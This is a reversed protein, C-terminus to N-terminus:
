PTLKPVAPKHPGLKHLSRCAAACEKGKIAARRILADLDGEESHLPAFLACVIPVEFQLQLNMLASITAQAVYEPHYVGGTVILGAAVIFDYRGYKAALKAQLPIEFIGPVTVVKLHFDSEVSLDSVFARKIEDVIDRHWCAEIFCINM